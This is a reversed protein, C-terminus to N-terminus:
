LWIRKSEQITDVTDKVPEPKKEGCGVMLFLLLGIFIKKM